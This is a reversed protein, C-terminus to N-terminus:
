KKKNKGREKKGKEGIELFGIELHKLSKNTVRGVVVMKEHLFIMVMNKGYPFCKQM